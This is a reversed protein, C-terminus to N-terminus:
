QFLRESSKQLVGSQDVKCELVVLYRTDIPHHPDQIPNKDEVFGCTELVKLAIQHTPRVMTFVRKVEPLVRILSGLLLKELGQNQAQPCIILNILKINGKALAPTISSMVFGLLQSTAQERVLAFFYLDGILRNIIEQGFKSLDALYFQKITEQLKQEVAMWDVQDAGQALLDECSKLFGGSSIADPFHKLFQAESVATVQSALDSVEKKFQALEPAVINAIHWEIVVNRGDKDSAFFKGYKQSQHNNMKKSEIYFNM